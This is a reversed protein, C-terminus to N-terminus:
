GHAASRDGRVVGGIFTGGLGAVRLVLWVALQQLGAAALLLVLLLGLVALCRGALAARVGRSLAAAERFAAKGDRRDFVCVQVVLRWRVLLWAGVALTAVAVAGIVVATSSLSPRAIRSTITSTM